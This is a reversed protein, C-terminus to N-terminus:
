DVGGIVQSPGLEPADLTLLSSAAQQGGHTLPTQCRGQRHRHAWSGQSDGTCLIGSVARTSSDFTPISTGTAVLGTPESVSPPGWVRGSHDRVM